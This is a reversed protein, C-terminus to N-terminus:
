PNPPKPRNMARIAESRARRMAPSCRRRIELNYGIKELEEKIDAYEAPTAPITPPNQVLVLKDYNAAGHQGVSEYSSCYYGSPDSPIEPSLALVGGGERKNWKRFVVKTKETDQEM